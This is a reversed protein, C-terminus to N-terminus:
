VIETKNIKSPSYTYVETALTGPQANPNPPQVEMTNKVLTQVQVASASAAWLSKVHDILIKSMPPPPPEEVKEPEPRHITWDKQATAAESGRRAPDPASSYVPEAMNPKPNQNVLNVVGPTPEVAPAASVSPNVPAVPIVRNAAMLTVDSGSPLLNSAREIPPLQM